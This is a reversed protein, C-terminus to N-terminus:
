HDLSLTGSKPHRATIAALALRIAMLTAGIAVIAYSPALLYDLPSTSYERFEYSEWMRHWVGHAIMAFVAAAIADWICLLARQMGIPLLDSVITIRIHGGSSYVYTLAFYIVAPMLFEDALEHSGTIPANFIYRLLADATTLLTLAFLAVCALVLLSREAYRIANGLADIM